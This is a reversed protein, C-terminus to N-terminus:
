QEAFFFSSSSFFLFISAPSEDASCGPLGLGRGSCMHGSTGAAAELARTEWLTLGRGSPSGGERHLQWHEVIGVFASLHKWKM